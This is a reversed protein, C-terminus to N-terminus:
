PRVLSNFRDGRDRYRALLEPLLAMIHNELLLFCKRYAKMSKGIPDAIAAKKGKREPWSGLMYLRDTVQPFFIDIFDVQVAEMALILRSAKLEEPLLPRSRHGSLDIQHERCLEIANGAASNGEQAHIGMSGVTIHDARNEALAKRLIGEAIASRCMNANCIFIIDAM